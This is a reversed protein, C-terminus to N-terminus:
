SRNWASCSATFALKTSPFKARSSRLGSRTPSLSLPSMCSFSPIDPSSAFFCYSISCQSLRPTSKTREAAHSSERFCFTCELFPPTNELQHQLEALTLQLENAHQQVCLLLLGPENGPCQLLAGSHPIDQIITQAHQFHGNKQKIPARITSLRPSAFAPAIAPPAPFPARRLPFSPLSPFRPPWGSRRPWKRFPSTLQM